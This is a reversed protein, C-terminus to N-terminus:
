CKKPGLPFFSVSSDSRPPKIGCTDKQSNKPYTHSVTRSLFTFMLEPLAFFQYCFELETEYGLYSSTVTIHGFGM